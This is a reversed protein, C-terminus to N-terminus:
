WTHAQQLALRVERELDVPRPPAGHSFEELAQRWDRGGAVARIFDPMRHTGIRDEIARVLEVSARYFVKASESDAPLNTRATLLDLPEWKEDSLAPVMVAARIGRATFYSRAILKGWYGALGEDLWLPVRNGYAASIAWHVTEHAIRDICAADSADGKLLIEGNLHIALSDGRFGEAFSWEEWAGASPVLIVRLPATLSSLGLRRVAEAAAFDAADALQAALTREPAQAVAARGTVAEFSAGSALLIRRASPSLEPEWGQEEATERLLLTGVLGSLLAAAVFVARLGPLRGPM